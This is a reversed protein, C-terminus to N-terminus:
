RYTALFAAKDADCTGRAGCGRVTSDYVDVLHPRTLLVIAGVLVLAAAGAIAPVRFQRWALRIM